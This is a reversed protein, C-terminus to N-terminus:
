HTSKEVGVSSCSRADSTRAPHPLAAIEEDIIQNEEPKRPDDSQAQHANPQYNSRSDAVVEDTSDEKGWNQPM